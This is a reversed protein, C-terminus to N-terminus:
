RVLKLDNLIVIVIILEYLLCFITGLLLQSIVDPPTILTAILFFGIFFLRRSKQIFQTKRTLFSLTLFTAVFLQGVFATVYYTTTYFTFYETIKMEFFISISQQSAHQFSLFFSWCFPLIAKNLLVFSLSWFFFCMLSTLNLYKLEKRYLGPTLFTKIHYVGVAFTLQFAVFYSLALYVSFIDTLNTAIFYLTKEKFLFECPQILLYLLTEKNLYSSMACLSWCLITLSVRNRIEYFYKSFM